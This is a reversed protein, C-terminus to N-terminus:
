DPGQSKEDEKGIEFIENDVDVGIWSSICFQGLDYCLSITCSVDQQGERNAIVNIGALNNRVENDGRGIALMIDANGCKRADEAVDRQSIYRKKLASRTVQSVTAVLINRRDALGKAWIYAGNLQHRLEKGFGSLDMIDLYDILLIDPTFDEFAELYNLFREVEPPSCQGMPYKKIRLRGGFRQMRKRAKIAVDTQYVSRIKSTHYQIGKSSNWKYYGVEQGIRKSGRISFMMDYRLEQVRQSVENSIHLINLGHHLGTKALHSLFFTKGAKYGGLTVLLQGRNYGGILRDLASIGTPVLYTERERNTINSYDRLYDLGADEEPIGSQLAAYLVNDAGELDNERVLLESARVLAIERERVRVFEHVRSLIFAKNPEHLEELKKLYRRYEEVEDDPKDELFRSLQDKFHQNPAEQFQAYYDYCLQAINETLYSTFFKPKMRGITLKLFETDTLALRLFSDQLHQNLKAM